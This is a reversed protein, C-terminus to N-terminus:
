RKRVLVPTKKDRGLKVVSSIALGFKPFEGWIRRKGGSFM